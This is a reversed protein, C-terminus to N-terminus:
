DLLLRTVRHVIQLISTLLQELELVRYDVELVEGSANRDRIEGQCIEADIQRLVGLGM